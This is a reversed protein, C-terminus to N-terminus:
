GRKQLAVTTGVVALWKGAMDCNPRHQPAQSEYCDLDPEDMVSREALDLHAMFMEDAAVGGGKTWVEAIELLIAFVIGTLAPRPYFSSFKNGFRVLTFYSRSIGASAHHGEDDLSTFRVYGDNDL